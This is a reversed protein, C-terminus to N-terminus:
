GGHLWIYAILAVGVVFAILIIVCGIGYDRFFEVDPDMRKTPKGQEPM